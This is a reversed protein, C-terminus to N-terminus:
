FSPYRRERKKYGGGQPLFPNKKIKNGEVNIEDKAVVYSCDCHEVKNVALNEM